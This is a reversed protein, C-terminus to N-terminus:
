PEWIAEGEGDEIRILNGDEDYVYTTGDETTLTTEDETVMISSTEGDEFEEKPVKMIQEGDEDAGTLVYYYDDDEFVSSGGDIEEGAYNTYTFEKISHEVGEEGIPTDEVSVPYWKGGGLDIDGGPQDSDDGSDGEGSVTRQSSDTELNLEHQACGTVLLLGLMLTLILVARM